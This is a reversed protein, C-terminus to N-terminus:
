TGTMDTDEDKLGQGDGKVESDDAVSEIEM